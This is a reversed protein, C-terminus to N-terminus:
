KTELAELRADLTSKEEKAVASMYKVMCEKEFLNLMTITEQMYSEVTIFLFM